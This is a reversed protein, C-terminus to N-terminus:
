QFGQWYKEITWLGDNKPTVHKINDILNQYDHNDFNSWGIKKYKNWIEKKFDVNSKYLENLLIRDIPPHICKIKNVNYQKSNIFIAKMYINILKAAVGHTFNPLNNKKAETIMNNRIKLHFSDFEKAIPLNNINKCIEYLGSNEIIEKGQEVKFRCKKSARAGTSAAWSAFRHIHEEITYKNRM